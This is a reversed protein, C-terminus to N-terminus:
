KGTIRRRRLYYVGGLGAILIFIMFGWQNMTPIVDSQWVTPDGTPNTTPDDTCAPAQNDDLSGDINTYIACGQNEVRRVTEPMTTRYTIVVENLATDEDIASPDDAAINGEWVIRNNLSDFICSGLSTSSGGNAVCQVSGSVYTTGAPIPDTVRVLLADTNGNNIWVMRWQLEPYGDANVTKRGSPPDFINSSQVTDTDTAENNTDNIEATGNPATVTAQNSVSGNSATVNASITFTVSGGSPLTPIVVGAGELLANSVTGPCVAGGTASGCTPTGTKSLGTALPDKVVAGDVASPGANSVVVTYITSGGANVSSVGNGKIISLDASPGATDTDKVSNNNTDPDTTGTPPSISATNELDGTASASTTAEVTYTVKKGSPITVTDTYDASSTNPGATCSAGSDAVCSWTWSTVQTPIDDEFSAGTINSPGDNSVVITYTTTSGPTYTGTSDTKTVSLDAISNIPVSANATNNDTDADPEDASVTATNVIPDPGTYGAPISYTVSVTISSGSVLDPLTCPFVGGCPSSASVFTLGTPAPDTLQIGTAKGPGNNTVVIQFTVNEGPVASAPGRKVVSLDATESGVGTAASDTNNAPDPDQVDASSVTAQNVIPKTDDYDSPVHFTVQITISSGSTLSGLDCPSTFGAGCPADASVVTLGAPTPDALQVGTATAPGNNRVTISYTADNDAIVKAPGTKIVSLDATDPGVPVNVTSTNNGSVPDDTDSSVTVTNVIPDAGSYGGPISFTANITVKAGANVTDITCPFGTTCPADASVLTLGASITDALVVNTADDSGNNTVTIHYTVTSGIAASPPGTKVVSLDASADRDVATSSRNNNNSPDPDPVDSRVAATNVIPDPGAYDAPVTYSVNFSVTAGSAIDGITCPFGGACPADASSFSLGAPTPDTVVVGTADAPGNNKVNVTFALTQGNNISGPGTKTIALDAYQIIGFNNATMDGSAPTTIALLGDATGDNTVNGQTEGSNYWEAPLSPAPAPDGISLANNNSLILTYATSPFLGTFSYTGAGSVASKAEIKGAANRAYVTLTASSANTGAETGNMIGDSVTGGGPGNDIFVTGSVANTFHDLFDNGTSNVGGTLTVSITNFGQSNPDNGDKDNTSASGTPDTEIVIYRGAGRNSFTYNGSSDTTQTDLAAGDAIGDGNADAYLKVTVGSIGSEVDSLNGNNNADSRVQGSIDALQTDLFKNNPYDVVDTVNIIIQNSVPNTSRYHVPDTEVIVYREPGTNLAINIFQYNGSSDTTQLAVLTADSLDGDGNPDRYVKVTVGAIGAESNDVGNANADNVVKGSISAAHTTVTASGSGPVATDGNIDVAFNVEATNQAPSCAGVVKFTVDKITTSNGTALAGLNSWLAVGGGSSTASPTSSVFELCTSYSDSVPLTAINTNGSNTVVIDFIVNEGINATAASTRNKVVTVAPNNITVTATAPGASASGSASVSNTASSTNCAAKATLTISLNVTAGSAIPGVNNWVLSGPTNTDPTLSSSQFTYCTSSYTDTLAITALSSAGPNTVSIDYQVPEGVVAVGDAPAVRTKSLILSPVVGNTVLAIDASVDTSDTPDTYAAGLIDGDVFPSSSGSSGFCGTFIGSSPPTETLNLSRSGSSTGTVYVTITEPMGAQDLDTVKLCVQQSTTYSTKDAGGGDIFQVIGPTGTDLATLTVQTSATATITGETGEHATANITYAGECAGTNWVYEYTKATENGVIPSPNVVATDSLTTTIDCSSGTTDITLDMPHGAPNIDYACFPDSVTARVYLTQGNNATTVVSGGPYPADYLALSDGTIVTTTPLDIKSPKLNSDYNIVFTNGAALGSADITLVVAGSAPITYPGSLTGTWQLYNGYGDSGATAGTATFFTTSGYKLSANISGATMSGTQMTYYTKITVSGGSPMDLNSCMSPTQTFTTSTNGSGSSPNISVGGMFWDGTASSWSLTVPSAAGPVYNAAGRIGGTTSDNAVSRDNWASTVGTTGGATPSGTPNDWTAVAFAMRGSASTISISPTGGSGNTSTLTLTQTTDADAFSIAGAATDQLLGLTIVIAGVTTGPNDYRFIDVAADRSSNIARGVLTMANGRFTASNAPDSGTCQASGCEFSVGVLLMTAGSGPTHNFSLTGVGTGAKLGSTPTGTVTVTGGTVGLTVSNSTTGDGTSVPDIRDLAQSPDSLYLTKTESPVPISANAASCTPYASTVQISDGQQFFLTGDNNTQGASASSSLSATFIGTNIGTETLTVTEIDKSGAAPNKVVVALTEAVGSNQNLDANTLKIYLTDGVSYVTVPTGGSNTFNLSCTAPSAPPVIVTYTANINPDSLYASNSLSGTKTIQADYTVTSSTGPLINPIILGDPALLPFSNGPGDPVPSGNLTTSGTVYTLGGGSGSALDDIIAATDITTLGANNITLTYRLTDTVNPLGNSNNDVHLVASKQISPVPFPLVATGMDLYPAAPGAVAPNQGWAVSLLTGDDTFLRTGTNDHDPAVIIVSQLKKVPVDQDYHQGNAAILSGGDGHYDVHVITDREVTVWLPSGNDTPPINGNGPAWGAVAETTLVGKPVLLFGWDHVNNASPNAGVTAVAYFPAGSTYFHGGSSVPMQFKGTTNANVTFNGTDTLTEYNVTIQGANPNYVFIFTADGDAATGVPAYYDSSWRTTPYILFWRSEYNAGVDGTILHVEVPKDCVLHDGAKVGGNIQYNSGRNLTPLPTVVSSIDTYTCSTGDEAATMLLGVYEFMSNDIASLNQGVPMKFDTGYDRLALMEAAGALVTGPSTAWEARTAVVAITAGFRDRGDYKIVSPNRPLDVTNRIAIVAGKSLGNPDHVFGPPIGNADNGDGWIETTPQTPNALDVEYGDEWHDYYIVTNNSTVVISIVTNMQSGIGSYLSKLAKQVQDEPLPVFFEQVITGAVASHTGFFGLFLLLLAPVLFFSTMVRKIPTSFMGTRSRSIFYAVMSLQSSRRLEM